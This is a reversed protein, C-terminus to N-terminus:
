LPHFLPVMKEFTCFERYGLKRLEDMGEDIYAGLHERKHSDSGITIIRGGLDRYLSLIERSPTLDRLGYRHSSTNLEIGKDDRIAKELIAAVIDRVKEFPYEGEEDYRVALDLHGLVSYHKYTEMVALIESYYAEYYEDRTKGKRLDGNWLERDEVQHCSLILFDFPFRQFLREYADVTHRQVGAELGFRLTIRGEYKKGLRLYEKRYRDYDVNALAVTEPEGKGGRRYQIGREDDRDRKVGYDVHDTFCIEDLGTGIADRVVDEMIYESDDSFQTHVHYDCRM